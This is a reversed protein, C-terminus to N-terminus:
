DPRYLALAATWRGDDGQEPPSWKRGGTWVHFASGRDVDAVARDYADRSPFVVTAACGAVFCGAFTVETDGQALSGLLNRGLEDWSEHGSGSSRLADLM